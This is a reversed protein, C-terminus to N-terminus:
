ASQAQKNKQYFYGGAFSLAVLVLGVCQLATNSVQVVDDVVPSFPVVIQVTLPTLSATFYQAAKQLWGIKDATLYEQWLYLLPSLIGLSNGSLIALVPNRFVRAYRRGAWFWGLFLLVPAAYYCILFVNGPLNGAGLYYLWGLLLPYFLYLVCELIKM